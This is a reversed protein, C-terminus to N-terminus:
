ITSSTNTNEAEIFPVSNEKAWNAVPTLKPKQGRGAGRQPQTVIFDLDHKSEALVDLCEIGFQGSGLYVIKM